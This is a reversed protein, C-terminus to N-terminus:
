DTLEPKLSLYKERARLKTSETYIKLSNRDNLYTSNTTLKKTADQVYYQVYDGNKNNRFNNKLSLM